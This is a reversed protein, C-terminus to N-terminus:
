YNPEYFSVRLGELPSNSGKNKKILIFFGIITICIYNKIRFISYMQLGIIKRSYAVTILSLYGWKNVLRIYTIDSVWVQEPRTVPM